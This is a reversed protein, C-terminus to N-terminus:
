LPSMVEQECRLPRMQPAHQRTQQAVQRRQRCGQAPFDRAERRWLEGRAIHEIDKILAAFVNPVLSDDERCLGGLRRAPKHERRGLPRV